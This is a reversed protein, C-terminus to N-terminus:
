DKMVLIFFLDITVSCHLHALGWEHYVTDHNIKMNPICLTSIYSEFWRGAELLRGIKLDMDSKYMVSM